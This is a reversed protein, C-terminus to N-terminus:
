AQGGRSALRRGRRERRPDARRDCGAAPQDAALRRPRADDTVVLPLTVRRPRDLVTVTTATSSVSAPRPRRPCRRWRPRPPAPWTRSATRCRVTTSCCAGPPWCPRAPAVARRSAPASPPRGGRAGDWAGLAASSPACRPWTPCGSPSTWRTPSCTSRGTTASRAPTAAGRRVPAAPGGLRRVHRGERRRRSRCCSTPSSPSRATASRSRSSSGARTSPTSRAGPRAPRRPRRRRRGARRARRHAAAALIGATDRGPADPLVRRGLRRRRRGPGRRRRGPPWRAAPDPLAGAELAGREGARRPVWALRAGTAEALRPRPAVACRPRRSGSASWSSPTTACRGRRPPSSATGSGAALARAGRGRHRPRGPRAPRRLKALGRTPSRPSALRGRHPAQPRGQAPAPLRDAVGGRARLGVLLM